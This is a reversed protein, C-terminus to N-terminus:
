AFVEAIPLSLGALIESHLTMGTGFIDITQIGEASLRVVEVTLAEPSVIWGERVGISRYDELKDAIERRTNTPSLIEIVLDPAQQLVQLGRLQAGETIGSRAASLFLLDPQRTRLPARRIIIDLPAFFLIGLRRERVFPDLARFINAAIWQHIPVPSAAMILEGDIIEYRQKMEPMALYDEYTLRQTDVAMSHGRRKRGGGSEGDGM